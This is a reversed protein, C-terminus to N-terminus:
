WWLSGIVAINPEPVSDDESPCRNGVRPLDIVARCRFLYKTVSPM